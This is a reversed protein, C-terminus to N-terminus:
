LRSAHLDARLEALSPAAADKSSLTPEPLPWEIRLQPDKWSLTREAQPKHIETCKYLVHATESLVQYGHAFGEPIYLARGSGGTLRTTVATGFTPSDPRVDVAVDFIEGQLASVLKGQPFPMQFHLGRLVGRLSFAINDQVFPKTLGPIRMRASNWFEQFWGREDSFVNLEILQVGPIHLEVAKVNQIQDVRVTM